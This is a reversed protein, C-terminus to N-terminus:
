RIPVYGNHYDIEFDMDSMDYYVTFLGLCGSQETPHYEFCDWLELDKNGNDAFLTCKMIGVNTVVKFDFQLGVNGILENHCTTYYPALNFGDFYKFLQEFDNITQVKNNIAKYCDLLTNKIKDTM